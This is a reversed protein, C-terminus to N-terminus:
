VLVNSVEKKLVQLRNNFEKSGWWKIIEDNQCKTMWKEPM